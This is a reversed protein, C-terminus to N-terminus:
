PIELRSAKMKHAILNLAWCLRKGLIRLRGSGFMREIALCRARDDRATFGGPLSINVSPAGGKKPVPPLSHLYKSNRQAISRPFKVGRKLCWIRRGGLHLGGMEEIRRLPAYHRDRANPRNGSLFRRFCYLIM